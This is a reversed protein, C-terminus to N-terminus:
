RGPIWSDHLTGRSGRGGGQPTPQTYRLACTSSFTETWKQFNLHQFLARGQPAFCMKFHFHVFCVMSPASKSASIIFFHVGKRRSACTLDFTYFVPPRPVSKSTLIHNQMALALSDAGEWLSCFTIIKYCNSFSQCAHSMDLADAFICTAHRACYLLSRLYMRLNTPIPMCAHM